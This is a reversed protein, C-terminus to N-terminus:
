PTRPTNKRYAYPSIGAFEKFVTCFYSRSSFGTDFAIQEISHDTRTLWEKALRIRESLLARHLTEGTHAKYLAALYVPHYGFEQGIQENDRIDAAFMRLYRRVREVLAAAPDVGSAKFLLEALLKKLLASTIADAAPDNKRFFRVLALVDDCFDSREPYILTEPVEELTATDFLLAPNFDAAPPPCVPTTKTCASRTLDFNLVAVRLKGRFRYGVGPRLLILTNPSLTEQGNELVLSGEGKLIYFLRHDYAMRAGQGELVAPQLEAARLFPNCEQIKM